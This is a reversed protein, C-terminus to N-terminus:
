SDNTRRRSAEISSRIREEYEQQTYGLIHVARTFTRYAIRKKGNLNENFADYGIGLRDRHAAVFGRAGGPYERVDARLQEVAAAEWEDDSVEMNDIRPNM